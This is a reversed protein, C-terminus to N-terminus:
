QWSLLQLTHVHKYARLHYTHHDPRIEGVHRSGLLGPAGMIGAIPPPIPAPILAPIPPPIPPALLELIPGAPGLPNFLILLM